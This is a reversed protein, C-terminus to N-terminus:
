RIGFEHLVEDHSVVKGARLDAHARAIAEADGFTVPEDDLPASLAARFSADSALRELLRQAAIIDSEAIRDVLEHLAERTM